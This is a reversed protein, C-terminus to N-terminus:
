WSLRSPQRARVPQAAREIVATTVLVEGSEARGMVRAALNIADGKISYTRRFCPGFDGAFVRGGNVGARLPLAWGAGRRGARRLM